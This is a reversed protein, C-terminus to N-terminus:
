KDHMRAPPKATDGQSPSRFRVQWLVAFKGREESVMEGGNRELGERLSDVQARPLHSGYVWAVASGSAALRRMEANGWNPDPGPTLWGPGVVFRMGTFRGVLEIGKPGHWEVTPEEEMVARGRSPANRGSSGVRAYWDLRALDPHRWDTTYFVWTPVGAPFVYVPAMTRRPSLSAILDRSAELPPFRSPRMINFAVGLIVLAVVALKIGTRHPSAPWLLDALAGFWLFAIPTLFLALRSDIPWLALASALLALGLSLALMLAAVSGSRKWIVLTGIWAAVPALFELLPWGPDMAGLMGSRVSLLLRSTWEPEGIRIMAGRWFSQMKAATAVDSYALHRQLFVACLWIVGWVMTSAAAAWSRRRWASLLLAGGIGGLIFVAPISFGIGAVGAFGLTLRRRSDDREHVRLAFLLLIASVCADLEYPKAEAAYAVLMPATAALAVAVLAGVESLVRRGLLWVVWPMLVGAALSPLRLTWEHMGFLSAGGKLLWLYLIPALQGYDLPRLLGIFDRRGINLALMAEDLWLPRNELFRSVRLGIGVLLAAVLVLRGWRSRPIADHPVM